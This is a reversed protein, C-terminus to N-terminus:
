QYPSLEVEQDVPRIGTRHQYGLLCVITQSRRGSAETETAEQWVACAVMQSLM